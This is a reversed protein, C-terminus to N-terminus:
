ALSHYDYFCNCDSELCLYVSGNENGHSRSCKMCKVHSTMKCARQVHRKKFVSRGIDFRTLVFMIKRLRQTQCRVVNKHETKPCVSSQDVQLDTQPNVGIFQANAIKSTFEALKMQQCVPIKLQTTYRRYLLWANVKCIDLLHVVVRLYWRRTKYPTRYLSILMDALDVGGM